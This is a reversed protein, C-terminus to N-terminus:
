HPPRSRARESAAAALELLTGFIGASLIDLDPVSSRDAFLGLTVADAYSTIAIGIAHGAALPVIPVIELLPAGFAYLTEAPGPVNTITLNFLRATDYTRAFANHALPPVLEGIALLTAVGAAQGHQKLRRTEECVRRYRELPDEEDVPLDVFMSSVRNGDGNGDAPVRRNVPVMARFGGSPPTEAREILVARLGGAAASLLVDNVTGGLQRRIERIEELPFRVTDLRRTSGIHVNFSSAAASHLQDTLLFESLARVRRVGEGPHAVVEAATRALGAAAASAQTLSAPARLRTGDGAPLPSPHDSSGLDLFLQFFKVAGVGDVICHHVKWVIAWRDDTLGEVVALEWLPRTRDLRHSLFDAAWELLERQGAPAPLRVGHVHEDPDFREDDVWRPRSFGGVHATSLRQRFRPLLALREDIRRRVGGISPTAAGDFVLVAGIHMLAGDHADELELFTADLGSLDVPSDSRSVNVDM